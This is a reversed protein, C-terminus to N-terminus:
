VFRTVSSCLIYLAFVSDCTRSLEVFRIISPHCIFVPLCLNATWLYSALSKSQSLAYGPYFTCVATIAFCSLVISRNHGSYFLLSSHNCCDCHVGTSFRSNVSFLVSADPACDDSPPLHAHQQSMNSVSGLTRSHSMACVVWM